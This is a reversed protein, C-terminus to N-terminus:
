TYIVYAPEQPLVDAEAEDGKEAAMSRSDDFRYVRMSRQEGPFVDDGPDCDEDLCIVARLSTSRESRQLAQEIYKFETVLIEIRWDAIIFDAREAPYTPDIPVFAHGSKLIGMLGVLLRSSEDA